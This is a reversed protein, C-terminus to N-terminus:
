SDSVNEEERRVSRLAQTWQVVRQEMVPLLLAALATWDGEPGDLADHVVCPHLHLRSRVIPSAADRACLIGVEIAGRRVFVLVARSLQAPFHMKRSTRSAGSERRFDNNGKRTCQSMCENICPNRFLRLLSM